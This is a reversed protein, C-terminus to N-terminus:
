DSVVHEGEESLGTLNVLVGDFHDLPEKFKFPDGNVRTACVCECGHEDLQQTVQPVLTKDFLAILVRTKQSQASSFSDMIGTNVM